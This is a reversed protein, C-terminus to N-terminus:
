VWSILKSLGLGLAKICILYGCGYALPFSLRCVCARQGNGLPCL